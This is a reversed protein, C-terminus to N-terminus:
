APIVLARFNKTSFPNDGGKSVMVVLVLSAFVCM